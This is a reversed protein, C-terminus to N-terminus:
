ARMDFKPTEVQKPADFQETRTPVINLIQSHEFLSGIGAKPGAADINLASIYDNLTKLDHAAAASRGNAAQANSFASGVYPNSVSHDLAYSYGSAPRKFYLPHGAMENAVLGGLTLTLIKGPNDVFFKKARAFAGKRAKASPTHSVDSPINKELDPRQGTTKDFRISDGAKSDPNVQVPLASMLAPPSQTQRMEQQGSSPITPANFIISM